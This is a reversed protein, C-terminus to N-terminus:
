VQNKPKRHYNRM